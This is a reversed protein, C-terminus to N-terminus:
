ANSNVSFPKKRNASRAKQAADFLDDHILAQHKGQTWGRESTALEGVYFRNTLISRVTDKRSPRNGQNGATRYGARNLSVAIERESKGDVALEFAMQLGLVTDPDAIPIGDDGKSVGFSLLGNYLGQAKREAKGKKVDLGLNDSYFQALGGM